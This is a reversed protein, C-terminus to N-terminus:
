KRMCVRGAVSAGCTFGPPCELDEACPFTCASAVCLGNVLGEARCTEDGACPSGVWRYAPCGSLQSPDPLCRGGQCAFGQECGQKADCELLCATGGEPTDQCTAGDGCQWNGNCTGCLPGAGECRWGKCSLGPGCHADETCEVCQGNPVCVAGDACGVQACNPRGNGNGPEPLDVKVGEEKGSEVCATTAAPPFNPLTVRVTYCGAALPGVGVRGKEDLVLRQYPTGEVSVQGDRVSLKGPAKVRVDFFGAESPVVEGLSVARGGQVRVPLRVAKKATAVIFLEAQGAPVRELTFAGDAGVTTRIGPSGVLSVLALASDSESLRGSVTGVLFPENQLNGCASAGLALLLPTIHHAKLM